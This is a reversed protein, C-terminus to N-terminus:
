DADVTEEVAVVEYQRKRSSDLREKARKVIEMQTYYYEDPRRKWVQRIEELKRATRDFYMWHDAEKSVIGYEKAYTMVTGFDDIQGKSLAHEEMDEKIRLYEGVGALTLVKEKRIAFSHRVATEKSRASDVFKSDQGKKDLSKKVMRLLLSFEHQM